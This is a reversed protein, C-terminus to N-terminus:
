YNYLERNIELWNRLRKCMSKAKIMAGKRILITAISSNQKIFTKYILMKKEPVPSDFIEWSGDIIEMDGSVRHWSLKYEFTDYKRFLVFHIKKIIADSWFEVMAGCSNSELVKLSDIGGYIKVYNNYDNLMAWIESRSGSLLFVAKVGPLHSENKIADVLIENEVLKLEEKESIQASITIEVSLIIILILKVQM